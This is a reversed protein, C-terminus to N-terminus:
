FISCPMCFGRNTSQASIPARAPPLLKTNKPNDLRSPDIQLMLQVTDPSPTDSAFDIQPASNLTRLGSLLERTALRTKISDPAQNRIAIRQPRLRQAKASPNPILSSASAIASAKLFDRRDM